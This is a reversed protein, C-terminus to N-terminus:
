SVLPPPVLLNPVFGAAYLEGFPIRYASIIGPSTAMPAPVTFAICCIHASGCSDCDGGVNPSPQDAGIGHCPMEQADASTPAHFALGTLPMGVMAAILISALVRRMLPYRLVQLLYRTALGHM